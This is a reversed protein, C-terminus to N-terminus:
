SSCCGRKLTTANSMVLTMWVVIVRYRELKLLLENLKLQARAKRLEQLLEGASYFRARYGQTCRWGRDSGGSPKKGARQRR